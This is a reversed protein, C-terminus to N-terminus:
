KIGALICHWEESTVPTISLRNGKRLLLMDSLAPQQRLEALSILQPFKRVLKIKVGYWRPLHSNNKADYYHSTPDFASLDPSAAKVIKVIGVIGPVACNSHYFFAQNDVQMEDRLMNRVQYNRVGEWFTIQRPSHALDDISFAGPESKMLWFKM